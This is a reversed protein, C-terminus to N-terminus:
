SDPNFGGREAEDIREQNDNRYENDHKVIMDTSAFYWGDNAGDGVNDIGEPLGAVWEGELVVPVGPQFLEAPAGVHVVDVVAGRFEIPFVVVVERLGDRTVEVQVPEGFPRGQVRFRQETLEARREVAEDATYFFLSASGLTQFLVFGLAAIVVGVAVMPLWRRSGIPAADAAKRPTLDLEADASVSDADVLETM